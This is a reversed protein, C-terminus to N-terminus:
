EKSRELQGTARGYAIKLFDEATGAPVAAYVPHEQLLPDPIAMVFHGAAQENLIQLWEQGSKITVHSPDGGARDAILHAQMKGVRYCEFITQRLIREPIHELLAASFVLDFSQDEFPMDAVTGQVINLGPWSHDIATRSIEIGTLNQYGRWQWAQIYRGIGSGLDLIRADRPVNLVAAVLGAYYRDVQAAWLAPEGAIYQRHYWGEPDAYSDEYFKGSLLDEEPIRPKPDM